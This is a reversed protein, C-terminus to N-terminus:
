LCKTNFLKLLTRTKWERGGWVTEMGTKVVSNAVGDMCDSADSIFFVVGSFELLRWTPLMAIIDKNVPSVKKVRKGVEKHLKNTKWKWGIRVLWGRADECAQKEKGGSAAAVSGPGVFKVKGVATRHQLTTHREWHLFAVKLCPACAVVSNISRTKDGRIIFIHQMYIQIHVSDISFQFQPREQKVSFEM